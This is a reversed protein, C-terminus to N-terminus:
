NNEDEWEGLQHIIFNQYYKMLGGSIWNEFNFLKRQTHQNQPLFRELKTGGEQFEVVQIEM